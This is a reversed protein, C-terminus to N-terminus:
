LTPRLPRANAMDLTLHYDKSRRDGGRGVQQNALIPSDVTWSTNQNELNPFGIVERGKENREVMALEKTMDLTPHYETINGNKREGIKAFTVAFDQQQM